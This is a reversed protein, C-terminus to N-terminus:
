IDVPFSAPSNLSLKSKGAYANHVLASSLILLVVILGALIMKKNNSILSKM